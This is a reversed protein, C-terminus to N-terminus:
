PRFRSSRSKGEIQRRIDAELASRIYPYLKKAEAARQKKEATADKAGSDGAGDDAASAPGTSAATGVGAGAADGTATGVGTAVEAATTALSRQLTLAGEATRQVSPAPASTSFLSGDAGRVALGARVAVDAASPISAAPTHLPLDSAPPRAPVPSHSSPSAASGNNAGDLRQVSGLPMAASTSPGSAWPALPAGSADTSGLRRLQVPLPASTAATAPAALTTMPTATSTTAVTRQVGVPRVFSLPASAVAAPETRRQVDAAPRAAPAAQPSSPSPSSMAPPQLTGGLDNPALPLAATGTPVAPATASSGEAMPQVSVMPGGGGVTPASTTAPQVLPLEGPGDPAEVLEGSEHDAALGTTAVLPSGGVLSTTPGDSASSPTATAAATDTLRQIPAEIVTPADTVNSTPAAPLVHLPLPSSSGPADTGPDDPEPATASSSTLPSSGVLPSTAGSERPSSPSTSRVTGDALRAVPLVPDALAPMSEATSSAAASTPTSSSAPPTSVSAAPFSPGAQPSSASPPSSTTPAAAPAVPSSSSSSPSSDALRSLPLPTGTSSAPSRGALPLDGGAAISPVEALGPPVDLAAAATLRDGVLPAHASTTPASPTSGDARRQIRRPQIPPALEAPAAVRPVDDTADVTPMMAPGDGDLPVGFGGIRHDTEETSAPSSASEPMTTASASGASAPTAAAATTDVVRAVPLPRAPAPRAALPAVELLSRTVTPEPLRAPPPASASVTPMSAPPDALRRVEVVREPEPVAHRPERLPLEGMGASSSIDGTHTALGGISGSPGDASVAHGLSGGSLRPDVHSTLIEPLRQVRFTTPMSSFSPALPPLTMWDGTREKPPRAVGDDVASASVSGTGPAVTASGAPGPTDDEDRRRFLRM